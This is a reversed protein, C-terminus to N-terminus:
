FGPTRFDRQLPLSLQSIGLCVFCRGSGIFERLTIEPLDETALSKGGHNFLQSRGQVKRGISYVDTSGLQPVRSEGPTACHAQAGSEPSHSRFM